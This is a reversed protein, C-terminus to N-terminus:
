NFGYQALALLAICDSTAPSEEGGISEIYLRQGYVQLKLLMGDKNSSSPCLRPMNQVISGPIMPTPTGATPKSVHLLMIHILNSIDMLESVHHTKLMVLMNGYNGCLSHDSPM